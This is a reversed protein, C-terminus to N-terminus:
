REEWYDCEESPETRQIGVVRGVSNANIITRRDVICKGWWESTRSWYVCTACKGTKDGTM